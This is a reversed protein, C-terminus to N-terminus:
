HFLSSIRVLFQKFFDIAVPLREKLFPLALNFASRIFQIRFERKRNMVEKAATADNARQQAQEQQRQQELLDQLLVLRALGQDSLYYAGTTPRQYIYGMNVAHLFASCLEPKTLQQQGSRTAHVLSLFDFEQQHSM